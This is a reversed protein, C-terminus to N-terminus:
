ELLKVQLSLREMWGLHLENSGDHKQTSRSEGVRTTKYTVGGDKSKDKEKYWIRIRM